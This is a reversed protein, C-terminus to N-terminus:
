NQGWAGPTPQWSPIHQNCRVATSLATKGQTNGQFTVANVDAGAEVLLKVVDFNGWKRASM